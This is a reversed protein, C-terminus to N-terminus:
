AAPPQQAIKSNRLLYVILALVGLAGVVTWFITSFRAASAKAEAELRARRAQEIAAAQARRVQEAAEQEPTWVQAFQIHGSNAGKSDVLRGDAKWPKSTTDPAVFEVSAIFDQADVTISKDLLQITGAATAEVKLMTMCSPVGAFTQSLGKLSYEHRMQLINNWITNTFTDDDMAYIVVRRGPAIKKHLLKLLLPQGAYELAVEPVLYVGDGEIAIVLFVDPKNVLDAWYVSSVNGNLSLYFGYIADNTTWVLSELRKQQEILVTEQKLLESANRKNVNYDSNAADVKAIAYATGGVGVTVAAAKLTNPNRALLRGIQALQANATASCLAVVIPWLIIKM